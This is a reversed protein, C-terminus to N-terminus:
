VEKEPPHEGCKQTEDQCDYSENEHSYLGDECSGPPAMLPLSRGISATFDQRNYKPTIYNLCFAGYGAPIGIDVSTRIGNRRIIADM